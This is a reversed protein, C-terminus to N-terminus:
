IENEIYGDWNGDFREVPLRPFQEQIVQCILELEELNVTCTVSTITNSM